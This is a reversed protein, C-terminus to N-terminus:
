AFGGNSHTKRAYPLSIFVVQSDSAEALESMSTALNWQLMSNSSSLALTGLLSTRIVRPSSIGWKNGGTGPGSELGSGFGFGFRLMSPSESGVGEVVSESWAFVRDFFASVVDIVFSFHAFQTGSATLLGTLDKTRAM